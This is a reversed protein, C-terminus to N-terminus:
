FYVEEDIRPFIDTFKIRKKKLFRYFDDICYNENTRYEDLLDMLNPRAIKAKIIGYTKREDVFEYVRAKM